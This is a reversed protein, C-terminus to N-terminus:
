FGDLNGQTDNYLQSSAFHCFKRQAKTKQEVKQEALKRRKRESELEM